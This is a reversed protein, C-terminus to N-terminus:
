AGVLYAFAYTGVVVTPATWYVRITSSDVVYGTAQIQDMEPEDRANGKSSIAAATQMIMVPKDAALGSLGIIDFTGSRDSVGLDQTFATFTPSGGPSSTPPVFLPM